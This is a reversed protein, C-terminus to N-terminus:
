QVCRLTPISAHAHGRGCHHTAMNLPLSQVVCATINRWMGNFATVYRCATVYMSPYSWVGYNWKIPVNYLRPKGKKEDQKIPNGIENPFIEFKAGAVPRCVM